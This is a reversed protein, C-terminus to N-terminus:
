PKTWIPEQHGEVYKQVLGSKMAEATITMERYNFSVAIAAVALGAALFLAVLAHNENM